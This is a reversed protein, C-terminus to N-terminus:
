QSSSPQCSTSYLADLEVHGWRTGDPLVTPFQLYANQGTTVMLTGATYGYQVAACLSDAEKVHCAQWPLPFLCPALPMARRPLASLIGCCCSSSLWGCCGGHLFLRFRVPM